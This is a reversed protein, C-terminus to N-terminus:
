LPACPTGYSAQSLVADHLSKAQASQTAACARYLPLMAIQMPPLISPSTLFSKVLSYPMFSHESTRVCTCFACADCNEALSVMAVVAM